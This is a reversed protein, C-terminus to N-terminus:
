TMRLHGVQLARWVRVIIPSPAPKLWVTCSKDVFQHRLRSKYKITSNKIMYFTYINLNSLSREKLKLYWSTFTSPYRAIRTRFYRNFHFQPPKLSFHQRGKYNYIPTENQINSDNAYIFLIHFKVMLKYKDQLLQAVRSPLGQYKM